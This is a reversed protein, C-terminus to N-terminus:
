ASRARLTELVENIEAHRGEAKKSFVLDGDAMVEFVGNKGRILEVDM